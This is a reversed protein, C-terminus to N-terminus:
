KDSSENIAQELFFQINNDITLYINSGDIENEIIEKTGAIKYGKLDKQYETKGDIGTLQENFSKEIGLEGIMNLKEDSKAYGILYSAFDGYPYYRKEVGEDDTYTEALVEGDSSLIQGRIVRGALVEQRKNYPNNIIYKAEKVNFYILYSIMAVFIVVFFISINFISRNKKKKM